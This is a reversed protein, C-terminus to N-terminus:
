RGALQRLALAIEKETIVRGYTYGQANTQRPHDIGNIVGRADVQAMAEVAGFSGHGDQTVTFILVWPTGIEWQTAVGFQGHKSTATLVLAKSIRKGNRMGAARGTVTPKNSDQHHDGTVRLVAGPTPAPVDKGVREVKIHPPGLLPAAAVLAFTALPLLWHIPTFRPM